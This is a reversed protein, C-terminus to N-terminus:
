VRCPAWTARPGVCNTHTAGACNGNANSNQISKYIQITTYVAELVDLPLCIDEIHSGAISVADGWVGGKVTNKENESVTTVFSTVSLEKLNLKNM